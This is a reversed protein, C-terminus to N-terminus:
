WATGDQGTLVGSIVNGLHRPHSDGEAVDVAYSAPKRLWGLPLGASAGILNIGDAVARSKDGDGFLAKPVSVTARGAGEIMGVVPSTSLRDDYPRDNWGNLILSTAQSIGPTFAAFYRLQPLLFLSALDDAWGDDDEDGLEGRAAQVIAEGLVAPILFAFAYVAALRRGRESGTLTRLAVSVETGIMNAQANFYAYFMTFLRSFTSGAEIRSVDEPDFSGQSQRVAADAMLAAETEAAGASQHHDYAAVWVVRDVMDQTLRQAFYGHRASFDQARGLAGRPKLIADVDMALDRTLQDDRGRMLASRAAIMQRTSEPDRWITVLARALAPPPVLAAASSIGTIQQAANVINGAMAQLGASRRLFRFIGDGARGGAGTAPIDVTQRATRQLWPVLLDNVATPDVGGMVAGFDPRKVLRATQRIAPGLHSFLLVKNVHAPILSLDLALPGAYDTRGKTFGRAAAPFMAANQLSGLADADLFRAGDAVQDQDVIAPVYGGRYAGWPTLIPKAEIEKFNFGFMKRHAAQAAPKTSELLDWIAQAMDMDAKTITGDAWIRTMFADWRSRDLGGDKLESGWGRRGLLLKGLNSDNGSHLIAHLLQAKTTFEFGLEPANITRPRSLEAMGPRLIDLIQPLIARRADRYAYVAAAVPRWIYRTLPGAEGDDMERAWSEVRRGAAVLGLLRLGLREKDTPDRSLDPTKARDATQDSIERVIREFEVQEGDVLASHAERGMTMLATIGDRLDRFAVLPIQRYDPEIEVRRGNPLIRAAVRGPPIKVSTLNAMIAEIDVAGAPDTEKLRGLWVRSDFDRDARALGYHALVARAAKFFDQDATAALKSDPKNLRRAKRQFKEVDQKVQRAQAELERNLLEQQKEAYATEYDRDALAIEARREHRRAQWHYRMYDVAEEVRRTALFTAAAARIAKHDM